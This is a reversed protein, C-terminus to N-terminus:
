AIKLAMGKAELKERAEASVDGFPRYEWVKVDGEFDKHYCYTGTELNYAASTIPAGTFIEPPTVPKETFTIDVLHGKGEIMVIATAQMCAGINTGEHIKMSDPDWSFDPNYPMMRGMNYEIAENIEQREKYSYAEMGRQKQVKQALKVMEPNCIMIDTDRPAEGRYLTNFIGGFVFGNSCERGMIAEADKIAEYQKGVLEPLKIGAPPQDSTIFDNFEHLLQM